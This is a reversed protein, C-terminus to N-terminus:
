FQVIYSKACPCSLFFVGAELLLYKSAVDKVQEPHQVVPALRYSIVLGVM